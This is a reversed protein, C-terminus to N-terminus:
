INKFTIFHCCKTFWGRIELYSPPVHKNCVTSFYQVQFMRSGLFHKPKTQKHKMTYSDHNPGEVQSIATVVTQYVYQALCVIQIQESLQVKRGSLPHRCSAPQSARKPLAKGAAGLWAPRLVAVAPGCGGPCATHCAWARSVMGWLCAARKAQM